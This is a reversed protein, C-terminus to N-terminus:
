SESKKASLFPFNEASECIVGFWRLDRRGPNKFAWDYGLYTEPQWIYPAHKSDLTPAGEYVIIDPVNYKITQNGNIRASYSCEGQRIELPGAQSTIKIEGPEDGLVPIKALCSIPSILLTALIAFIIRSSTRQNM